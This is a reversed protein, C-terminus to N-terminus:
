WSCGVLTGCVMGQDTKDRLCSDTDLDGHKNKHKGARVRPQATEPVSTSHHRNIDVGGHGRDSRLAGNM